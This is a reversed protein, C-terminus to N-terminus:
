NKVVFKEFTLGQKKICQKVANELSRATKYKEFKLGKNTRFWLNYGFHGIKCDPRGRLDLLEISFSDSFEILKVEKSYYMQDYM